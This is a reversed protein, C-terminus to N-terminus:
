PAALVVATGLCGGGSGTSTYAVYNGAADTGTVVFGYGSGKVVAPRFGGAAGITGSYQWDRGNPSFYSIGNGATGSRIAILGNGDSGLGSIGNGAGHGAPTAARPPPTTSARWATAPGRARPSSRTVGPPSAASRRSSAV